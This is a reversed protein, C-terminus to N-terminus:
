LKDPDAPGGAAPGNIGATGAVAPDIFGPKVSPYVYDFGRIGARDEPPVQGLGDAPEADGLDIGEGDSGLADAVDQRTMRRGNIVTVGRSVIEQRDGESLAFRQPAVDAGTPAVRGTAALQAKLRNNEEVLQDRQAAIEDKTESM